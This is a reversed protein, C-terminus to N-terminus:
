TNSGVTPLESYELVRLSPGFIRFFIAHYYVSLPGTYHAIDRYLVEGASLRWPVYLQVGFDILVDPWTQWTWLMM